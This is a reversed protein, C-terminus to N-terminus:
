IQQGVRHGMPKLFRKPLEKFYYELWLPKWVVYRIGKERALKAIVPDEIPTVLEGEIKAPMYLKFEPTNPALRLYVELKALGDTYRAPLIKAEIIIIRKKPYIVVADAWRRFPSMALLEEETYGEVPPIVYSGLRCQLKVFPADKYFKMVYESVYRMEFHRKWKGSKYGKVQFYPVRTEKDQNEAM